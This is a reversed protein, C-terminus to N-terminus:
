MSVGCVGFINRIRNRMRCIKTRVSSHNEGMAEAIERMDMGTAMAHVMEREEDTLPTFTEVAVKGAIQRSANMAPAEIVAQTGAEIEEASFGVTKTYGEKGDLPRFRTCLIGRVDAPGTWKGVHDVLARVLWDLAAKTPVMRELLAMVPKPEVPFFQLGESLKLVADAIQAKTPRM